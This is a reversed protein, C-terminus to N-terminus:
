WSVVLSILSSFFANTNKGQPLIWVGGIVGMTSTFNYEIAPALIVQMVSANGLSNGGDINRISPLLNLAVIRGVARSLHRRADFAIPSRHRAEGLHGHFTAPQQAYFFAEMVSVWHQTMSYEAALDVLLANGPTVTGTTDPAGGYASVGQIYVPSAYMLGTCLHTKIYQEGYHSLLEFNFSAITLYSGGGGVDTGYLAPNLNDFRGSPLTEQITFRVSPRWKQEGQEALQFGLTALTDGVGSRSQGLNQNRYYSVLVGADMNKAIGYTFIFLGWDSSYRPSPIFRHTTDFIGRSTIDQFEGAVYGHGIPEVEGSLAILPGTFWPEYAFAIHMNLCVILAYFLRCKFM